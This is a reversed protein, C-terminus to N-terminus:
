YTITTFLRLSNNHENITFFFIVSFYGSKKLKEAYTQVIASKGVKAPRRM